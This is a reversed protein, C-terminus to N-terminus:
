LEYKNGGKLEMVKIVQKMLLKHYKKMNIAKIIGGNKVYYWFGKGVYYEKTIQLVDDLVHEYKYQSFATGKFLTSLLEVEKKISEYAEKVEKVQEDM